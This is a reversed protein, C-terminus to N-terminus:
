IKQSMTQVTPSRTDWWARQIIHRNWPDSSWGDLSTYLSARAVTVSCRSPRDRDGVGLDSDSQEMRRRGDIDVLVSRCRDLLRYGSIPKELPGGVELEHRCGVLIWSRLPCIPPKEGDRGVFNM